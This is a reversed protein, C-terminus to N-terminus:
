NIIFLNMHEELAHVIYMRQISMSALRYREHVATQLPCVHCNRTRCSLAKSM